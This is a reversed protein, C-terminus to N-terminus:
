QSFTPPKLELEEKRKKGKRKIYSKHQSNNNPIKLSIPKVHKTKFVNMEM